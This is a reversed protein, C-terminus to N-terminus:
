AKVDCARRRAPPLGQYRVKCPYSFASPLAIKPPSAAPRPQVSKLPSAARRPRASKLQSTPQSACIRLPASRPTTAVASPPVTEPPSGVTIKLGNAWAKPPPRGQGRAKGSALLLVQCCVQRCAPAKAVCKRTPERCTVNPPTPCSGREFHM